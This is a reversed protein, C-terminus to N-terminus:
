ANVFGGVHEDAKHARYCEDPSMTLEFASESVVQAIQEWSAGQGVQRRILGLIGERTFDDPWAPRCREYIRAVSHRHLPKRDPYREALWGAIRGFSLGVTEKLEIIQLIIEQEVEDMELEGDVLKNGFPVAGGQFGRAPRRRNREAVQEQRRAEEFSALGDVLAALVRNGCADMRGNPSGGIDLLWLEVGRQRFEALTAKLDALHRFLVGCNLALVADGRVVNALLERGQPREALPTGGSTKADVLWHNITVGATEAFDRLHQRQNQITPGRDIESCGTRIYAYITM